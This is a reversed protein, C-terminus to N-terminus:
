GMRNEVMGIKSIYKTFMLPRGIDKSKGVINKAARIESPNIHSNKLYL